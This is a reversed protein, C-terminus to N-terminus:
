NQAKRCTHVKGNVSEELIRDGEACTWYPVDEEKDCPCGIDEAEPIVWCFRQHHVCAKRKKQIAPVDVSEPGPFTTVSPMSRDGEFKFPVEQLTEAGEAVPTKKCTHFDECDCCSTTENGKTIAGHPMQWGEAVPVQIVGQGTALPSCKYSPPCQATGTQMMALFLVFGFMKNELKM